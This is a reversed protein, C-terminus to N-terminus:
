SCAASCRCARRVSVCLRPEGRWCLLTSLTSMLGGGCAERPAGRASVLRERAGRADGSRDAAPRRPLACNLSPPPQPALDDRAPLGGAPGSMARMRQSQAALPPRRRPGRAMMKHPNWALSDAQDVGAMLGRHARSLLCAGGPVVRANNFATQNGVRGLGVWGRRGGTQAKVCMCAGRLGSICLQTRRARVSVWFCSRWARHRAVSQSDHARAGAADPVHACGLRRGCAAV